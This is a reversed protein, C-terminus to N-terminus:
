IYINFIQFWCRNIGLLHLDADKKYELKWPNEGCKEVKEGWVKGGNEFPETKSNVAFQQVSYSSLLVSFTICLCISKIAKM